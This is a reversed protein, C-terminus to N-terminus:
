RAYNGKISPWISIAQKESIPNGHHIVFETVDSYRPDNISNDPVIAAYAKYSGEVRAVLITLLVMGNVPDPPVPYRKADIGVIKSEQVEMKM